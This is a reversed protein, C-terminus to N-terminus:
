DPLRRLGGHRALVALDLTPPLTIARRGEFPFIRALPAEDGVLFRRRWHRSNPSLGRGGCQARARVGAYYAELASLGALRYAVLM